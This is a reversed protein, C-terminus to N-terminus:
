CDPNKLQSNRAKRQANNPPVGAGMNFYYNVFNYRLAIIYGVLSIASPFLAKQKFSYLASPQHFLTRRCFPYWGQSRM